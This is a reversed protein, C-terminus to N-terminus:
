MYIFYQTQLTMGSIVQVLVSPATSGVTVSGGGGSGTQDAVWAYDSGNWSLIQGSSAGSVNLHSDVDVSYSSGSITQDAVWAYDTGNWYSKVLPLVVLM